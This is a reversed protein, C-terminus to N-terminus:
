TIQKKSKRRPNIWDWFCKLNLSNGMRLENDKANSVGYSMLTSEERFRHLYIRYCVTFDDLEPFPTLLKAWSEASPTGSRQLFLVKVM